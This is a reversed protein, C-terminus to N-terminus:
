TNGFSQGQRGASVLDIKMQGLAILSFLAGAHDTLQEGPAIVIM